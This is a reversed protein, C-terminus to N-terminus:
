GGLQKAFLKVDCTGTGPTTSTYTVRIAKFPLQNLNILIVDNAGNAAPIGGLDLAAWDGSDSVNNTPENINYNNSAEVAFTGISDSTAITIQYSCNDLNQVLTVPSIFSAALSQDTLLQYELTNKRSM